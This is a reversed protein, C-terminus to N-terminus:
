HKASSLQALETGKEEMMQEWNQGDISIWEVPIKEKNLVCHITIAVGDPNSRPIYWPLIGCKNCFRRVAQKTGWQYLTTREKLLQEQKSVDVVVDGDDHDNSSSSQSMMYLQFDASPVVLHANKRMGCDSCNCDLVKISDTTTTTTPIDCQFRGRVQGCHCQTIFFEKKKTNKTM